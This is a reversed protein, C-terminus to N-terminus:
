GHEPSSCRRAAGRDGAAQRRGAALRTRRAAGSNSRRRRAEAACRRRRVRPEDLAPNEGDCRPRAGGRTARAAAAGVAGSSGGAGGREGQRVRQRARVAAAATASLGCRTCPRVLSAPSSILRDPTSNSCSRLARRRLRAACQQTVRAGLRRGRGRRRPAYCAVRHSDAGSADHPALRVSSSSRRRRRSLRRRHARSNQVCV